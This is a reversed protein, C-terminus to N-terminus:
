RESGKEICEYERFNSEDHDNTRCDNTEADARFTHGIDKAEKPTSMGQPRV